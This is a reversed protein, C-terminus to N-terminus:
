NNTTSLSSKNLRMRVNQSSKCWGFAADLKAAAHLWLRLVHLNYTTACALVGM